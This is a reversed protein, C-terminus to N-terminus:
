STEYVTMLKGNIDKIVRGKVCQGDEDGGRTMTHAM